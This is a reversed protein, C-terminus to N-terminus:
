VGDICARNCASGRRVEVGMMWPGKLWNWFSQKTISQAERDNVRFNHRTRDQGPV